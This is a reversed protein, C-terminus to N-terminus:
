LPGLKLCNKAFYKKTLYKFFPGRFYSKVAKCFNNHMSTSYIFTGSLVQGVLGLHYSYDQNSLDANPYSGQHNKVSEQASEIYSILFILIAGSFPVSIAGM